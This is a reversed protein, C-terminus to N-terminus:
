TWREYVGQRSSPYILSYNNYCVYTSKSKRCFQERQQATANSNYNYVDLCLRTGMYFLKNEQYYESYNFIELKLYIYFGFSWRYTLNLLFVRSFYIRVCFLNQELPNSFLNLAMWHENMENHMKPRQKNTNFYFRTLRWGCIVDAYFPPNKGGRMGWLIGRGRRFASMMQPYQTSNLNYNKLPFREFSFILWINTSCLHWFPILTRECVILVYIKQKDFGRGLHYM